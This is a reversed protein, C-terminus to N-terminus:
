THCVELCLLSFSGGRFLVFEMELADDALECIHSDHQPTTGPEGCVSCCGCGM